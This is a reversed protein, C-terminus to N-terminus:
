TSGTSPSKHTPLPHGTTTQQARDAQRHARPWRRSLIRPRTEPGPTKCLGPSDETGIDPSRDVQDVLRAILHAPAVHAPDQDPEIAPKM